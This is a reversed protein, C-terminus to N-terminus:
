STIDLELVLKDLVDLKALATAKDGEMDVIQEKCTRWPANSNTRLWESREEETWFAESITAPGM